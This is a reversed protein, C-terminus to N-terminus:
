ANGSIIKSKLRELIFNLLLGVALDEQQFLAQGHLLCSISAAPVVTRLAQLFEQLEYDHTGLLRDSHRGSLEVVNRQLCKSVYNNYTVFINLITQREKGSITFKFSNFHTILKLSM